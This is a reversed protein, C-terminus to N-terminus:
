SEASKCSALKPRVADPFTRACVAATASLQFLVNICSPAPAIPFFLNIRIDGNILWIRVGHYCAAKTARFTSSNGGIFM